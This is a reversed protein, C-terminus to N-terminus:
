LFLCAEPPELKLENVGLADKNDSLCASIRHTGRLIPEENESAKSLTSPSIWQNIFYKLTLQLKLESLYNELRYINESIHILLLNIVLILLSTQPAVSM